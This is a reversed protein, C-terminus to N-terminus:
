SPSIYFLVLIFDARRHCLAKLRCLFQSSPLPPFTKGPATIASWTAIAANFSTQAWSKMQQSCPPEKCLLLDNWTNHRLRQHCPASRGVPAPGVRAWSHWPWHQQLPQQVLGCIFGTNHRHRWESIRGWVDKQRKSCTAFIMCMISSFKHTSRLMIEPSSEKPWDFHILVLHTQKELKSKGYVCCMHLTCSSDQFTKKGQHKPSRHKLLM